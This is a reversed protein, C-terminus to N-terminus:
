QRHEQGQKLLINNPLEVRRRLAETAFEDLVDEADYAIENLKKLWDKVVNDMASKKEADLLIAKIKSLSEELKRLERKVGSAVGIEKVLLNGLGEVITGALDSLIAEAM